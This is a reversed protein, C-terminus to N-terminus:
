HSKKDGEKKFFKDDILRWLVSFMLGQMGTIYTISFVVLSLLFMSVLFFFIEVSLFEKPRCMGVCVCFTGNAM